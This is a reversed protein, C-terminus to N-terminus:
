NPTVPVFMGPPLNYRKQWGAAASAPVPENIGRSFIRDVLRDLPTDANALSFIQRATLALFPSRRNNRVLYYNENAPLKYQKMEASVSDIWDRHRAISVYIGYEDPALGDVKIATFFGHTIAAITETEGTKILLPGGSDGHDTRQTSGAPTRFLLANDHEKLFELTGQLKRPSGGKKSEDLGFGVATVEEEAKPISTALPYLPVEEPLPRDLLLLAIDSASSDLTDSSMYTREDDSILSDGRLNVYHQHTRYLVVRAQFTRNEGLQATFTIHGPSPADQIVHAATLVINRDILTGTGLSSQNQGLTVLIMGVTPYNGAPVPTGYDIALVPASFLALISLTSSVTRIFPSM